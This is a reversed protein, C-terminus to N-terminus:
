KIRLHELSQKHGEDLWLELDVRRFYLKKGRKIFPIERKSTYSYLTQVSLNLFQSAQQVTMFLNTLGTQKLNLQELAKTVSRLVIAELDEESFYALKNMM